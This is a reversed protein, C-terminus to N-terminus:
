DEIPEDEGTIPNLRMGDTFSEITESYGFEENYNVNDPNPTITSRIARSQKALVEPDNLDGNAAYIDQIARQIVPSQKTPGYFMVKLDFSLTWIVDRRTTWDDEYNDQLNLSNLTIAVDDLFNMGPISRITVTYAPTFWPLIQEIIQNSDDIFKSIISLEITMKYPVGQYQRVVTTPDEPLPQINKRLTNLKRNSDYELSKIEFSMRPLKLAYNRSLEPDEQNRVIYREAPGYALPVKAREVEKGDKDRKVVFINAFLSGFSAVVKRMTFHYFPSHFM